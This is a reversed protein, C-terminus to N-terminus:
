EIATLNVYDGEEFGTSVYLKNKGQLFLNKNLRKTRIIEDFTLAIYALPLMWDLFTYDEEDNRLLQDMQSLVEVLGYNHEPEYTPLEAWEISKNDYKDSGQLYIAYYERENEEDFLKTIGIWLALTRKSVPSASVIQEIWGIFGAQEAEVNLQRLESWYAKPKQQEHFDIIGKWAEKIPLKANFIEEFNQWSADHSFEM